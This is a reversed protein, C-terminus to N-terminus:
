ALRGRTGVAGPPRAARDIAADDPQVCPRTSRGRRELESGCARELKGSAVQRSAAALEEVPHTVRASTWVSLAAALLIAAAAVLLAVVQIHKELEVLERISSGVLFMGLVEHDLGTLPIVHFVVASGPDATWNIKAVTEVPQSEVRTILPMLKDAWPFPGTADILRGDAGGRDFTQGGTPTPTNEGAKQYLLARMGEPLVLSALFERDLRRGGVIYLRTDGAQVMRVAMLALAEGDALEERKLFTGQAPWDKPTTVWPEKYGFRAPWQASSIITGDAAILELFDLQHATALGAADDVHSSLDPAEGSLSVATRLTEDAHAIGDVRRTVEDERRTFERQFQAVLATTRQSDLREFADRMLSSVTWAVLGVAIVVTLTFLVTLKVRFSM